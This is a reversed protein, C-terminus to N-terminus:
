YHKTNYEVLELRGNRGAVANGRYTTVGCNVPKEKEDLEVFQEPSLRELISRISLITLHHTVLMVRQGAYERTLTSMFSRTRARVDSASEGQPYQYWYSGMLERLEKQEPHMVHFVRWDNYLLSLGHEQERIRDEPVMKSLGLDPWSVKMNDLTQQARIYPSIFVVDPPFDSLEAGIAAGTVQAMEVGRETIPTKYDSVGLSWKERVLDALRRAEDSRYNKNYARKFQAYLPDSSKSDRLVNYQSQAHRVIVLTVPWKM